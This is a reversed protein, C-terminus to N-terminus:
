PNKGLWSFLTDCFRIKQERGDIVHALDDWTEGM